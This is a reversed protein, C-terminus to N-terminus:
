KWGMSKTHTQYARSVPLFACRFTELLCRIGKFRCPCKTAIKERWFSFTGSTSSDNGGRLRYYFDIITINHGCHLIPCPKKKKKQWSHRLLVWFIALHNTQILSAANIAWAKVLNNAWPNAPTKSALVEKHKKDEEEGKLLCGDALRRSVPWRILYIRKSDSVHQMMCLSM